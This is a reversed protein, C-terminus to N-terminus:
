RAASDRKHELKCQGNFGDHHTTLSDDDALSVFKDM